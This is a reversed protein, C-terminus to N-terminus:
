NKPWLFKDINIKTALFRLLCFMLQGHLFFNIYMYEILGLVFGMTYISCVKDLVNTVAPEMDEDTIHSLLLHADTSGGSAIYQYFVPSMFPFGIGELVVAHAVMKGLMKFVGGVVAQPTYRPLLCGPPGDFLAFTTSHALQEFLDTFFQRRPGGADVAPQDVYRVAIPMTPDFRHHKYYTAVSSFLDDPDVVVTHNVPQLQSQLITQLGQFTPGELLCKITSYEDSMDFITDIGRQRITPFMSYLQERSCTEEGSESSLTPPSSPPEVILSDDNPLPLLPPLQPLECDLPIIGLTQSSSASPTSSSALSTSCCQYQSDPIFSATNTNLTSRSHSGSFSHGQTGRHLQLLTTRLQSSPRTKLQSSPTTQLQSSPTMQLQSSSSIKTSGAPVQSGSTSKPAEFDSDSDSEPVTFVQVTKRFDRTLRVYICGQGSLTKVANGNWQFDLTTNPVQAVKGTVQIFEFHSPTVTSLDHRESKTNRLMSTIEHRVDDEGAGVPIPSVMGSVIVNTNTKTFRGAHQIDYDFVHIPKQFTPVTNRKKKLEPQATAPSRNIIRKARRSGSILVSSFQPLRSSTNTRPQAPMLSALHCRPFGMVQATENQTM